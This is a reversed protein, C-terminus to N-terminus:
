KRVGLHRTRPELVMLARGRADVESSLGDATVEASVGGACRDAGRCAMDGGFL